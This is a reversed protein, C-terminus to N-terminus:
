TPVNAGLFQVDWGALQFADAVMRVGIAHNNGEVCAVLVRQGTAPSPTSRLLALTMVSQVIASAIHEQAVSVKNAAWQEGIHYLAARMVHLEVEVLSHGDDLLQNVIASAERQDGALLAAEFADVDAWPPAEYTASHSIPTAAAELFQDRALLLADRVIVGQVDDMQEGFFDALWELSQGLHESPISRAQLVSDLWLLYDVMPQIIGFEVVPRLFELHFALDDRCAQRGREGFRQYASGHTAYFRETVASVADPQLIRFRSLGAEGLTPLSSTDM